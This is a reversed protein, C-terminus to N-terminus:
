AHVELHGPGTVKIRPINATATGAISLAAALIDRQTM